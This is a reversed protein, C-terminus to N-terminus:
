KYGMNRMIEQYCDDCVEGTEEDDPYNPLTLVRYEHELQAQEKTNARHMIRQCCDCLFTNPCKSM